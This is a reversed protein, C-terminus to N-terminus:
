LSSAVGSALPSLRLSPGIEQHLAGDVLREM